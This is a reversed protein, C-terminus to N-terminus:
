ERLWEKARITNKKKLCARVTYDLNAEFEWDEQKLRGLAPIIPRSWQTPLVHTGVQCEQVNLPGHGGSIISLHTDIHLKLLFKNM